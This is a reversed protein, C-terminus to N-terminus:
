RNVFYVDPLRNFGNHNKNKKLGGIFEHAKNFRVNKQKKVM